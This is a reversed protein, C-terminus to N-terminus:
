LKVGRIDLKIKNSLSKGTPILGANIQYQFLPNIMYKEDKYGTVEVIQLVKRTKDPMRGLHVIIDIAEMIQSRIAEMPFEAATLFMAELRRLMGEPSNGHGTSLSGDHGTNMAQIMDVVEGGRVEGVIIRDPRMRLSAKILDRVSVEGKGQINANRTEMRVVNDIKTIQLEASDEIVIVREEKPICDSLVNLFTTKGSSTGGSIFINYGAIVLKQLFLSAEESISGKEILEKMTIKKKPFKRITLIPGNLAVNRYVANIRSGDELRADVIPNLENIERHVKAALRRIIEELDEKSEFSIPLKEIRGKREIFVKETGNVMIESVENDDAYPQLIDLERRTANFVTATLKQKQLYPYWQTRNDHLVFDEILSLVEDDTIQETRANIVSRVADTIEKITGKNQMQM